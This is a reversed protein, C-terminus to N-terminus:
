AASRAPPALWVSACPRAVSGAVSGAGRDTELRREPLPGATTRVPTWGSRPTCRGCAQEMGDAAIVVSIRITSTSIMEINIGEDALVRFMKAAVGPTTKMGAGVLSVKAIDGDHSM